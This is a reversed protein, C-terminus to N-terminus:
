GSGCLVKWVPNCQANPQSIALAASGLSKQASSLLLLSLPFWICSFVGNGHPQVAAALGDAAFWQVVLDSVVNLSALIGRRRSPTYCVVLSFKFM